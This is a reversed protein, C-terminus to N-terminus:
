KNHEEREKSIFDGETAERLLCNFPSFMRHSCIEGHGFRSQARAEYLPKQCGPCLEKKGSNKM